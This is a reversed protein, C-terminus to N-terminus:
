RGTKSAPRLGMKSCHLMRHREAVLAFGGLAAPVLLLIWFLVEM